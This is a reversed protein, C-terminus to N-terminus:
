RPWANPAPPRVSIRVLIVRDDTADVAVKYVAAAPAEGEGYVIFDTPSLEITVREASTSDADYAQDLARSVADKISQPAGM